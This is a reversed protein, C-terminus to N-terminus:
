NEKKRTLSQTYSHIPHAPIIQRSWDSSNLHTNHTHTFGSVWIVYFSKVKWVRASCHWQGECHKISPTFSSINAEYCCFNLFFSASLFDCILHCGIQSWKFEVAPSCTDPFPKFKLLRLAHRHTNQHQCRKVQSSHRFSYIEVWCATIQTFLYVSDTQRECLVFTDFQTSVVSAM